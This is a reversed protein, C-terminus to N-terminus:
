KIDTKDCLKDSAYATFLSPVLGHIILAIAIKWSFLLHEIYTQNNEQLHKYM